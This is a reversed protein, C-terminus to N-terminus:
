AIITVFRSLFYVVPVCLIVSDFRDLLGGHGPMITGYDKIDCGRKIVSFLLDGLISILANVFGIVPLIAYNITVNGYILQFILGILLPAVTACAVGGMAGEITKKPSIIPALKHKGIASGIFYAGSDAIWPIGLILVLWFAAFRNESCCRVILLAMSMSLMYVGVFAFLIDEVSITKYCIVSIICIFLVFLFSPIFGLPTYSLIPILFAFILCPVFLRMDKQLKKATLYEGCLITSVAATVVAIVISYMEGLIFVALAIVIGVGASILRTKM